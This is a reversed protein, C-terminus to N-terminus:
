AVHPRPISAPPCEKSVEINLINPYISTLALPDLFLALPVGSFDVVRSYKSDIQTATIRARKIRVNTKWAKLIGVPEM